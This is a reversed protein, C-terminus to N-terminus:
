LQEVYSNPFEGEVPLFELNPIAVVTITWTRGGDSECQREALCDASYLRYLKGIKM